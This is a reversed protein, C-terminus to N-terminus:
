SVGGVPIVAQKREELDIRKGLLAIVDDYDSLDAGFPIPKGADIDAVFQESRAIWRVRESRLEPLREAPAMLDLAADLKETYRQVRESPPSTPAITPSATATPM